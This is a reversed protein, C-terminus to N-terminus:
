YENLKKMAMLQTHYAWVDDRPIGQVLELPYTFKSINM